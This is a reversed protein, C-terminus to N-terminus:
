ARAAGGRFQKPLRVTFLSGRGPESEVDVSGGHLRLIERVLYLGVGTGGLRRTLGGDVMYFKEFIRPLHEAAIGSGQDRVTLEVHDSSERGAVAVRADRASYKIANDVLKRVVQQLLGGDGQAHLRGAPPLELALKLGKKEAQPRLPELSSEVLESVDLTQVQLTAAASGQEIRSVEILTDIMDIVRDCSEIIIRMVDKLAAEDPLSAGRLYEAWGRIVTLPTRFEHSVNRLYEQRLRDLDELRQNAEKLEGMRLRKEEFLRAHEIAVATIDAFATLIDQDEPTFQRLEKTVVELTGLVEGGRLLPVCLYSCYGFSELVDRFGARPDKRMDAVNLPRGEQAVRGSLSEGVRLSQFRSVVEPELGEQAAPRLLDGEKLLLMCFHTGMIRNVSRTVLPLTERPELREVIRRSIEVLSEFERGRRRAAEILRANDLAIAVHSAVPEIMALDTTSFPQPEVRSLCLAGIVREKSLLPLTAAACAEKHALLEHLHKPRPEDGGAHWAVPRRFAWAVDERRFEARRQRAGAGVSVLDVAPSTEDLLAITLRDFPLFRRSEEAAVNFIDEITLSQNVVNAIENIAALRAAHAKVDQEMRRERTMDRVTTITARQGEWQLPGARLSVTLLAGSQSRMRTELEGLPAQSEEFRRYREDIDRRNEAPILELFSVGQLGAATDGAMQAFANNAFVIKGDRLIVIGDKMRQMLHRYREESERLRMLAQEQQARSEEAAQLTRQLEENKALLDANAQGLRRQVQHLYSSVTGGMFACWVLSLAYLETLSSSDPLRGLGAVIVGDLTGMALAYGLGGRVSVAVVHPYLFLWVPSRSGGTFAAGAGVALADVVDHLVKLGRRPGRHRRWLQVGLGFAAYGIAVALAPLPQVRPTSWLLGLALLGLGLSLWRNLGTLLQGRRYLNRAKRPAESM